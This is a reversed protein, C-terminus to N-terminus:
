LANLNVEVEKEVDWIREVVFEYNAMRIEIDCEETRELNVYLQKELIDRASKESHATIKVTVGAPHSFTYDYCLQKIQNLYFKEYDDIIEGVQYEDWPNDEHYEETLVAYVEGFSKDTCDAVCQVLADFVNGAQPAIRDTLRHPWASDDYFEVGEFLVFERRMVNERWHDAEEDNDDPGVVGVVEQMMKDFGLKRASAPDTAEVKTTKVDADQTIFVYLWLYTPQISM